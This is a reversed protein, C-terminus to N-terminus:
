KIELDEINYGGDSFVDVIAFRPAQTNRERTLAGITFMSLAEPDQYRTFSHIDGAFVTLVEAEKFINRLEEAQRKVEPEVKGAEGDAKRPSGMFRDSSPHYLPEHLFIFTFKGDDRTKQMQEKLWDWQFSDLGEYNDSNYVLVFRISSDSFSQYAPGFTQNFYTDASLKKDRAAWLDHDGATLYFPLSSATFVRKAAQLEELTGTNTYDGLGIVFKAGKAQALKLAQRLNENDNHSDTLLAFRLILQGERKPQSGQETEAPLVQSDGVEGSRGLQNQLDLVQQPPNGNFVSYLTKTAEESTVLSIIIDKPDLTLPDVGSFYRFAQYIGLGFISLMILSLFLRLITLPLFSGKKKSESHNFM